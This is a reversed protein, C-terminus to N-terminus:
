PTFTPQKQCKSHIKAIGSNGYLSGPIATPLGESEEV